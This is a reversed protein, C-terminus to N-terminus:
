EPSPAESPLAPAESSWHLRMAAILRSEGASVQGDSNILVLAFHLLKRQMAYDDIEALTHALSSEDFSSPSYPRRKRDILEENLREHLDHFESRSLKIDELIQLRELAALESPCIHGDALLAMAM